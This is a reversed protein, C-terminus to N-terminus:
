CSQAYKSTQVVSVISSVASILKGLSTEVTSNVFTEQFAEMHDDINPLVIRRLTCLGRIKEEPNAPGSM